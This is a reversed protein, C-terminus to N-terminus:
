KIIRLNSPPAPALTGGTGGAQYAGMDWVGNPRARGARDMLLSTGFRQTFLAAVSRMDLGSNEVPSGTRVTFDHAAANNFQPDAQKSGAGKRSASMWASVSSYTSGWGIAVNSGGQYYLESNITMANQISSTDARMHTNASVVINGGVNFGLDPQSGYWQGVGVSYITNHCFCDYGGGGSNNSNIAVNSINYFVNGIAYQDDEVDSYALGITSDHIVNNLVWVNYPGQGGTPGYHIVVAEGPSTSSPKINYFENGSIIVDHVEKLDVANERNEYSVSNGIYLHHSTHNADHGNGYGDGGCHYATTNIFWTYTQNSGVGFCHEDAETTSQWAGVDHVSVNYYVVYSTGATNVAQGFGDATTGTGVLEAHRVSIYDGAMQWAEDRGTTRFGEWVVYSASIGIVSQSSLSLTVSKDGGTTVFIPRALTGTGGIQLTGSVSYPGGRVQVVDGAVLNSLSPLSCRPTSQTGNPNNTDTCSASKNDIWKTSYTASGYVSAVTENIGFPPSPIGTPWAAVAPLAGVFLLSGTLTALLRPRM